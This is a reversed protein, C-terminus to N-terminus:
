RRRPSIERAAEAKTAREFVSLHAVHWLRPPLPRLKAIVDLIEAVLKPGVQEAVLHWFATEAMEAAAETRIERGGCRKATKWRIEDVIVSVAATRLTM